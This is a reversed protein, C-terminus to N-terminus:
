TKDDRVADRNAKLGKSYRNFAVEFSGLQAETYVRDGGVYTMVKAEDAVFPFVVTSSDGTATAVLNEHWTLAESEYTEQLAFNIDTNLQQLRTGIDALIAM